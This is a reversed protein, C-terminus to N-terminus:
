EKGKRDGRTDRSSGNAPRALFWGRRRLSPRLVFPISLHLVLAFVCVAVRILLTADLTMTGAAILLPPILPIGSRSTRTLIWANVGELVIGGAILIFNLM